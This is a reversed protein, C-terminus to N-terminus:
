RAVCIGKPNCTSTGACEPVDDSRKVTLCTGSGCAECPSTCANDCCVGDKCFGSSCQSAGSCLQGNALNPIPQPGCAGVGNCTAGGACELEPDSGAAYGQCVGAASPQNCSRCPGACANTCCVGDACHGSACEGDQGCSTGQAKGCTGADDCASGVGLGDPNGDIRADAGPGSDSGVDHRVGADEAEAADTEGVDLPAGTAAQDTVHPGDAGVASDPRPTAGDGADPLPSLDRAGDDAVDPEVEAQDVPTDATQDAGRQADEMGDSPSPGLAAGDSGADAAMATLCGGQAPNSVDPCDDIRDPVDDHDADTPVEPALLLDFSRDAGIPSPISLVGDLIRAGSAFARIHVRLPGQIAGPQILVTGLDPGNTAPLPGDAPIRTGDWLVGTDDYVWARLEDPVPMGVTSKLHLLVAGPEIVTKASRCALGTTLLILLGIRLGRM